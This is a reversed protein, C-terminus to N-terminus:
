QLREAVGLQQLRVEEEKLAVYEYRRRNARVVCNKLGSLEIRIGKIQEKQEAPPEKRFHENLGQLRRYLLQLEGINKRLFTDIQQESAESLRVFSTSDPQSLADFLSSKRRVSEVFKQFDISESQTTSTRPDFHRIEVLWSQERSQFRKQLWSRFRGGFGRRNKELLEQNAVVKRLADRILEAWDGLREERDVVVNDWTTTIEEIARRDGILRIPVFDATFVADSRRYERPGPMWVHDVLVLGIQRDSLASFLQPRLFMKNRVEVAFRPSDPLSDLFPTLRGLFGDLTIGSAKRFYPFQLIVPGLKEGLPAMADLYARVVDGCDELFRDHTVEQVM